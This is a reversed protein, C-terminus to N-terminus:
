MSQLTRIGLIWFGKAMVIATAECLLLRSMNVKVVEGTIRDKEVVYCADYFETFTGALEYLYDCLTHLMWDDMMRLIIEPFHLVSKALKAEKPHDLCIPTTKAAESLEAASLKAKRALSRMRVYAYQLYVATNGKDDLMKDFSFIYDNRRNHSLDAYKICGYAVGSKAAEFEEATLEDHRGKERLKAESRMLGEDLLDVLRVTDGSRTKFKKKDDKGQVVGFGVHEVRTKQKDFWGLDAGIAYVTELHTSQGQDVVYLIWDAKEENLRHRLAALESTDYTYAGDKKVVTLPVKMNPAWAIKRDKDEELKGKEEMIKVVDGMLKQYFSEGQDILDAIDLREYIKTFEQRSVDYILNWAKIYMPDYSQLQVVAAYARKKFDEEKDFRANSEKYFTQLDGIPPSVTTYNPFKEQLHAILMGIPTGWDGLHNIKKVKHGVFSCLRAVSEGIITSRLHGVHMEKAINPSSMDVLVKKKPGVRPPTVGNNLMESVKGAIFPKALHINIFGGGAIEVKDIMESQVDKVICTAIDHASIEMNKAKLWQAIAMASNCQYDGFSEKTSPTIKVPPDKLDPFAAEIPVRFVEHLQDKISLMKSGPPTKAEEITINRKLHNIQYQLQARVVTVFIKVKSLKITCRHYNFVTVSCCILCVFNGYSESVM